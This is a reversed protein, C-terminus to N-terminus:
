FQDTMGFRLWKALPLMEACKHIALTATGAGPEILMDAPEHALVRAPERLGICLGEAMNRLMETRIEGELKDDDEDDDDAGDENAGLAM